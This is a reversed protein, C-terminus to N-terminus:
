QQADLSIQADLRSSREKDLNSFIQSTTSANGDGAVSAAAFAASSSRCLMLSAPMGWVSRLDLQTSFGYMARISGHLAQDLALSPATGATAPPSELLKGERSQSARPRSAHHKLSQRAGISQRQTRTFSAVTTGSQGSKGNRASELPHHCRPLQCLSTRHRSSRHDRHGQCAHLRGPGRIGRILANPRQVGDGITKYNQGPCVPALGLQRHHKGLALLRALTLRAILRSNTYLAANRPMRRNHLALTSPELDSSVCTCCCKQCALFNIFVAVSGRQMGCPRSHGGFKEDGSADVSAGSCIVRACFCWTPKGWSRTGGHLRRGM